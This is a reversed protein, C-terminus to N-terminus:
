ELIRCFKKWHNKNDMDVGHKRLIEMQVINPITAYHWFEKKIGDKTYETDNRLTKNGELIPEVDQFNSITTTDTLSDYEFYDTIGTVPDYDLIRKSMLDGM